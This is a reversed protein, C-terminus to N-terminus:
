KVDEDINTKNVFTKVYSIFDKTCDLILLKDEKEDNVLFYYLLDEKDVNSTLVLLKAQKANFVRDFSASGYVGLRKIASSEFKIVNVRKTGHIVKSIRISGTVFTYDYDNCYKNRIFRFGLAMLVFAGVSLIIFIISLLINSTDIGIGFFFIVSLVVLVWSVISLINFILYKVKEKEYKGCVSTEEYFVDRM